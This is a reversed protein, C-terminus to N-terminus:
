TQYPAASSPRSQSAQDNDRILMFLLGLVILVGITALFWLSPVVMVWFRANWIIYLRWLLLSEVLAM